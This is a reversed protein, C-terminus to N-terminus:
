LGKSNLLGEQGQGLNGGRSKRQQYPSERV